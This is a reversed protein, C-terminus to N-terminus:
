TSSQLTLRISMQGDPHNMTTTAEEEKRSNQSFTRGNM